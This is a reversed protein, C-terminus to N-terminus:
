EKLNLLRTRIEHGLDIANPTGYSVVAVQEAIAKDRENAVATALENLGAQSAAVLCENLVAIQVLRNEIGRAEAMAYRICNGATSTAVNANPMMSAAFVAAINPSSQLAEPIGLKLARSVDATSTSGDKDDTVLSDLRRIVSASLEEDNIQIAFALAATLLSTAPKEQTILGRISEVIANNTASDISGLNQIATLIVSELRVSKLLAADRTRPDTSGVIELLLDIHTLAPENSAATQDSTLLASHDCAAAFWAALKEATIQQRAWRLSANFRSKFAVAKDGDLDNTFEDVDNATVHLLLRSAEIPFGSYQIREATQLLRRISTLPGGESQGSDSLLNQVRRQMLRRLDKKRDAADYLASLGDFVADREAANEIPTEELTELLRLRVDDWEPGLQQLATNLAVIDNPALSATNRSRLIAAVGNLVLEHDGSKANLFIKLTAIHPIGADTTASSSIFEKVTEISSALRLNKLLALREALPAANQYDTNQGLETLIGPLLTEEECVDARALFAAIAMRRTADNNLLRAVTDKVVEPHTGLGQLSAVVNILLQGHASWYSNKQNLVASLFDAHRKAREFAQVYTEMESEFAAPDDKLIQLYIDCAGSVDGSNELAVAKAKLSPPARNSLLAIRDRKEVLRDWQEAADHFECLIELLDISNPSAALMEEYREILPTLRGLRGLAKIAQLREGGDDRDDGPRLGSFLSGGSSLKLLEWAVEGALADNKQAMFTQLQRGLTSERNESGRGLRAQIAAVKDHMQMKELAPILSRQQNINIPLGFLREAAVVGRASKGDKLLQGLVFSEREIQLATDTLNMSDLIQIAEQVLGARAAIRSILFRLSQDDPACEAAHILSYLLLTEDGREQALEARILHLNAQEQLSATETRSRFWQQVHENENLVILRKLGLLVNNAFEAGLRGALIQRVTRQDASSANQKFSDTANASVWSINVIAVLGEPDDRFMTFMLALDSSEVNSGLDAEPKSTELFRLQLQPLLRKILKVDRFNIAVHWLAKLESPERCTLIKQEVAAQLDTKDKPLLLTAMIPISNQNLWEPAAEILGKLLEASRNSLRTREADTLPNWEGRQGIAYLQVAMGAPGQANKLLGDLAEWFPASLSRRRAGDILCAGLRLQDRESLHGSFVTDLDEQSPTQMGRFIVSVACDCYVQGFCDFPGQGLKELWASMSAATEVQYAEPPANLVGAAMSTPSEFDVNLALIKQCLARERESRGHARFVKRMAHMVEWDDASKELLRLCLNEAIEYYGNETQLEIEKLIQRRGMQTEAVQTMLMTAEDIHNSQELIAALRRKGEVSDTVRVIERQYREVEGANHEQECLVLLEKLLSVNQSDESLLQELTRRANRFDGAERYAVALCRTMETPLNLERSRLELREILKPFQNSRLYLNSLAIVINTQSDLDPAKDFARWYLEIAEPTQFEDALTKALARLSAEDGPNVRVAQRLADVAARPQGVEFALDAFFQYAEPNGPTSRIIERGTNLAADFQGLRVQFRAIKRLYDSIGRRDLLTLKRMAVVADGLRGTREHLDALITWGPISDPVLEVVRIASATADSLKDGADQYEALTRWRDALRSNPQASNVPTQSKLEAALLKTQEELQVAAVLTKIRDKLIQRREDPSESSQEALELQELAEAFLKQRTAEEATGDSGTAPTAEGASRLMDAFQMRETPDPDMGCAERMSDLAQNTLNFRTLVEALRILNARSRREGAAIQRWVNIAEDTRQLQHLYEGLYERYQPENPANNIAASYLEIARDKLEARRMLTAVRALTVSDNQRDILLRDWIAAAKSQRETLSIDRRNLYLQGWAEIHDANRGDFQAMQEYQSIAENIRNERVLQEIFSERLGVNSPALTIAKQYWESAETTRNQISLNRALRIMADIDDGHERLWAEYYTILGALDGRDRFITEMRRRVDRFLWSDPDLDGLQSELLHVAKDPQGLQVMLESAALNAQVRLEPVNSESAMSEYRKLADLWRGDQALAMAIQEKVRMDGPFLNELRQWVELAKADQQSRQLTRALEKYIELLDTKAPRCEAARELSQISLELQRNMIRTRGLYWHAIPDEPRLQTARELAKASEGARVHQLDLMGVIMAAVGQDITGAIEPIVSGPSSADASKLEPIGAADAMADHFAAITGCNSHFEYVRDYATGYRPNRLLVKLFQQYKQVDAAEDSLENDQVAIAPRVAPLSFVILSTALFGTALRQLLRHRRLHRILLHRSPM